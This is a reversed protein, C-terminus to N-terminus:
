EIRTLQELPVYYRVYRRGDDFREGRPDEVLVTARRTIRNVRGILVRDEFRFRVRAGVCVGFNRAARERQTILDHSHETHGFYRGAINQFRARSCASDNWLFMELLHVIEHECVRQMAELRNSCRLGTVTIPRDVDSFTQFLLTSSLVLEFRRKDGQQYRQADTMTRGRRDGFHTVLKGANSTMRSSIAFQLRERGVMELLRSDFFERDYLTAMRRLDDTHIRRFNAGDMTRSLQLVEDHIQQQRRRVEHAPPRHTLVTESLRRMEEYRPTPAAQSAAQPAVTRPRGAFFNKASSKM